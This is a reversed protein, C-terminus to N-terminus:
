KNKVESMRIIHIIKIQMERVVLSSINLTKKTNKDNHIKNPSM